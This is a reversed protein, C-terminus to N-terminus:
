REAETHVWRSRAAFQILTLVLIILFILWALASAYGMKFYNFGSVFLHFVPVLMSDAPGVPGENPKMVFVRDFEQIAGIFGMVLNFFIIPSLQPFTVSWFQRWPKAGDIESAEYLSNPVGKLGALWLIMGSGVGWLGMLVLGPKAWPESTLWGPPPLNLWASITAKWFGNVLGKNPDGTLIWSWLVGAAVTPVIAPMYFMTRYFRMGRVASNLLMAVALGSFLGLPVGVGALYAANSFAKSVLDADTTFLDAYNKGGVWRPESLVSYQTFSFFLSALMPGLVFTFFGIVWPSVFLYGWRAERCANHGLKLRRYSLSLALGGFGLLIACALLPWKLDVVPHRDQQFVEDLERQVIGQGDKLAQEPTKRGYLANEVERVHVDWLVQGAFTVPRFKALPMMDIHTQLAAAFKKDPPVVQAFVADMAERNAILKPMYTRGRRQEWARQGAAYVLHGDVSTAFKIFQWAGEVNRAGKPIAYSHGGSWTVFKDKVGAFRGRGFFRDDPVPPPATVFETQPAFRSLENLINDLDIKMAVKGVVFGDNEGRLFGSEFKRANEYGGLLDYCEKMFRLAEAAEPTALTCTRGDESIFEADNMFAFMYLWSNGLLPMFGARRLSGDPNKETFVKSYRLMESWTQPPRKPDLGAARLEDAKERFIKQNYYLIRDDTWTPIAYVKGQYTAEAWCSPYFKEPKPCNAEHSDRAILDDLSRFAARSAWDSITFRDQNIIDPAVNGVISTMLKQPNMGGAGMGLVRIRFQPHRREFERIVAEHGKAEPGKDIGWAIVDTRGQSMAACSLAAAFGLCVLRFRSM